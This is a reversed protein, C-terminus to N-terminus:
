APSNILMILIGIFFVLFLISFFLYSTAKGATLKKLAAKM